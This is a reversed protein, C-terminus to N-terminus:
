WCAMYSRHNSRMEHGEVHLQVASADALIRRTRQASDCSRTDPSPHPSHSQAALMGLHGMQKGTRNPLARSGVFASVEM